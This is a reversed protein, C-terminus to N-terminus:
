RTEFKLLIGDIPLNLIIQPDIVIPKQNPSLKIHFNKVVYALAVKLQSIAFKMGLCNKPGDGFSLYTGKHRNRQEEPLFREPIFKEPEPYHKPDRFYFYQIM